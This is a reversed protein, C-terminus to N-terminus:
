ANGASAMAPAREASRMDDIAGSAIQMVQELSGGEFLAVRVPYVDPRQYSVLTPLYMYTGNALNLVAVAADPNADRLEIQLQSYSESPVLVMYADGIRWVNFYFDADVGDGALDRRGLTRELREIEYRETATALQRKIDAQSPMSKLKLRTICQRGSLDTSIAAKDVLRWIGLPSGSEEIGSYQLQKGPPFMSALTSLAAYGLERGNQDAAEPNAEYSRRPTLDGSPGHLFVCVANDTEREVLERMAGIYDPSLLKNAGGLSVPHCAYNVLTAMIRGTRDTVRGVLLTDDAKEGPNLGCIERGNAPDIFNRDFALACRGYKWTLIGETASARAAGILQTCVTPLADLYPAILHGGPRDAHKRLLMPLSHSHSPHIALQHSELDCAQMIANRLRAMEDQPLLCVDLALLVLESGGSNDQLVLCTGYAPRHVGEAVDHQASGWLRAYIGVPPTIPTRSVGIRGSFEPHRLSQPPDHVV